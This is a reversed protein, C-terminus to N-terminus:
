ATAPVSDRPRAFGFGRAWVIDTGDVLAISVAPLDKDAMEHDIFRTLLAATAAYDARAPVSDQAALPPTALAIAVALRLVPRASRHANM